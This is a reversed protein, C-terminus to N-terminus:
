DRFYISNLPNVILKAITTSNDPDNIWDESKNVLSWFEKQSGNIIKNRASESKFLNNMLVYATVAGYSTRKSTKDARIIDFDVGFIQRDRETNVFGKSEFVQIVKEYIKQKKSQLDTQGRDAGSLYIKLNDADTFYKVFSNKHNKLLDDVSHNLVNITKFETIQISEIVNNIEAFDKVELMADAFNKIHEGFAKELKKPSLSKDFQLDKHQLTFYMQHTRLVHSANNQSVETDDLQGRTISRNTNINKLNIQCWSGKLIRENEPLTEMQASFHKIADKVNQKTATRNIIDKIQDFNGEHFFNRYHSARLMDDYIKSFISIKESTDGDKVRQSSLIKILEQFNEDRTSENLFVKVYNEILQNM